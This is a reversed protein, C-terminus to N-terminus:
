EDGHEKRGPKAQPHEEIFGQLIDRTAAHKDAYDNTYQHIRIFKRQARTIKMRVEILPEGADTTEPLTRHEPMEDEEPIDRRTLLNLEFMPIAERPIAVQM